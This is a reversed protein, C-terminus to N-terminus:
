LPNPVAPEGQFLFLGIGNLITDNVLNVLLKMDPGITACCQM